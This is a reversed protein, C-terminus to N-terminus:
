SEEDLKRSVGRHHEDREADVCLAPEDQRQRFDRDVQQQIRHGLPGTSPVRLLKSGDRENAKCGVWFCRYFSM